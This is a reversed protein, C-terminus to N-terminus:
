ARSRNSDFHEDAGHGRLGHIRAFRQIVESATITTVDTDGYKGGTAEGWARMTCFYVFIAPLRYFWRTRAWFWELIRESV